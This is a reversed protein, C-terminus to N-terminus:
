INIYSFNLKKVEEFVGSTYSDRHYYKGAIHVKCDYCDHFYEKDLILVFLVLQEWYSQSANFSFEYSGNKFGVKDLAQYVL